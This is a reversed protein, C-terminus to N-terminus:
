KWWGKGPKHRFGWRTLIRTVLPDDADARVWVVGGQSSKDQIQLGHETALRKLAGSTYRQSADAAVQWPDAPRSAQPAQPPPPPARQTRGIQSSAPGAKIGFEKFLTAEFMPEWKAWGHIGDQHSMWLNAASKRKLSNTMTTGLELPESTDFPLKKGAPYGYLANGMGSFEVVVLNGMTMIFANNTGSANLECILGTMKKRLAVFDPERSYRAVSGLAFEIHGISKVYRKWFEMRRRDGMGDEALKTFFTEIFELKLWDAVMARANESVGGWRTKNSRLWPNGWWQVALDRLAQHLPTDTVKAYRDLVMVFGRDRLVVNESLLTLLRPLLEKFRADGYGAAKTIQALVLERLFWSTQAIGLHECLQNIAGDDGHLLADVYPACPEDGFLKRNGVATTAWDPNVKKDLIGRANEDLYGRLTTWNQRGVASVNDEFTDYTFYSKVLGQYCRRFANPRSKWAGVGDLVRKFRPRDEMVCPGGPQHPVCLAWSLQYADRFTQIEQRGWFRKVAELQHDEPVNASGLSKSRREMDSLLKDISQTVGMEQSGLQTGPRLLSELAGLPNM